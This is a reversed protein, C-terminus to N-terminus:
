CRSQNDHYAVLRLLCGLLYLPRSHLRHYEHLCHQVVLVDPGLLKHLLHVLIQRFPTSEPPRKLSALSETFDILEVLLELHTTAHMLVLRLGFALPAFKCPHESQYSAM